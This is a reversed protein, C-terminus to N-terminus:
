VNRPGMPLEVSPGYRHECADHELRRARPRARASNIPHSSGHGGFSSNALARAGRLSDKVGPLGAGDKGKDERSRRGGM